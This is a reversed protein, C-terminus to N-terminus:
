MYWGWVNRGIWWFVLLIIISRIIIYHRLIAYRKPCFPRLVATICLAIVYPLLLLIGANYHWVDVWHGQLAAHLARQSGCGLCQWGTLTLFPCRPFWTQQSPDFLGYVVVMIALLVGAALWQWRARYM